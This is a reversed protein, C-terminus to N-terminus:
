NKQRRITVSISNTQSINSYIINFAYFSFLKSIDTFLKEIVGSDAGEEPWMEASIRIFYKIM